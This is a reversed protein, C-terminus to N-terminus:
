EAVQKRFLKILESQSTSNRLQERFGDQGLLTALEKIAEMHGQNDEAAFTFLLDVPDFKKHGFSVPEQLLTFSLCDEFVYDGPRAHLLALHPTIIVYPGKEELSDVIAGIYDETVKETEILPATAVEIAEKWDAVQEIIQVTEETLLEELM